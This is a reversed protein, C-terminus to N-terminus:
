GRRSKRSRAPDVKLDVKGALGRLEERRAKAILEELGAIVAERRTRAHTARVAEELLEEPIDLTTRM